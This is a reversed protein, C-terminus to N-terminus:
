ERVPSMHRRRLRGPGCAPHERCPVVQLAYMPPSNHALGYRMELREDLLTKPVAPCPAPAGLITPRDQRLCPRGGAGSNLLTMPWKM